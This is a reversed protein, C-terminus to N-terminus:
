QKSRGVAAQVGLVDFYNASVLFVGQLVPKGFGTLTVGAGSFAAVGSFVDNQQRFDVFNPCSVPTRANLPAASATAHDVTYLELVRGPDRVSPLPRLFVANTLTFIATNAGIGLGLSLLAAATYGPSHMLTRFAYKLDQRFSGM